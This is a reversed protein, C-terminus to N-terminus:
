LTLRSLGTLAARSGVGDEVAGIALWRLEVSVISAAEFTGNLHSVVLESGDYSSGLQCHILNRSILADLVKLRGPSVRAV